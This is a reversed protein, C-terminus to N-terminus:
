ACTPISLWDKEPPSATLGSRSSRVSGVHRNFSAAINEIARVFPQHGILDGKSEAFVADDKVYLYLTKGFDPTGSKQMAPGMEIGQTSFVKTWAVPLDSYRKITELFAKNGMAARGFFLVAWGEHREGGRFQESQFFKEEKSNYVNLTM